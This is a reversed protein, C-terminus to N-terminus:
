LETVEALTPGCSVIPQIKGAHPPETFQQIEAGILVFDTDAFALCEQLGGASESLIQTHIRVPQEQLVFPHVWGARELIVAHGGREAVGFHNTGGGTGAGRGSVCGGRHGQIGMGAADLCGNEDAFSLDSETLETLGHIVAGM